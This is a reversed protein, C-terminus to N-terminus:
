KTYGDIRVYVESTSVFGVLVGCKVYCDSLDGKGKGITNDDVIYVEAGLDTAAVVDPDNSGGVAATKFRFVGEKWVKVSTTGIAASGTSSVVYDEAVGAFLEGTTNTAPQVGRHTAGRNLLAGKYVVYATTDQNILSEVLDGDKRTYYQYNATLAAM